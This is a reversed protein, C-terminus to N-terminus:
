LSLPWNSVVLYLYFGFFFFSLLLKLGTSTLFGLFSGIAARWARKIDDRKEIIEGVFAGVFAGIVFGLPIPLFLGIVMGVTAGVAGKKSGGFKKAGIAPILYDLIFIGVSLVFTIVLVYYNMEVWSSLYLCLLGFWGTLPGPLVPLVSGAIGALILVFGFIVLFLDM